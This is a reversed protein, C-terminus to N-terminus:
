RSRREAALRTSGKGAEADLLRDDNSSSLYPLQSPSTTPSHAAHTAARTRRDPPAAAAAGAVLGDVEVLEREEVSKLTADWSGPSIFRAYGGRQGALRRPPVGQHRAYDRALPQAALELLDDGAGAVLVIRDLRDAAEAGPQDQLLRELLLQGLEEAALAVLAAALRERMAVAVLPHPHLRGGPCELELTRAHAVGGREAEAARDHALAHRARVRELREDDAGEQAAERHAVDLRRQLLGEVTRDDGLRRDASDAGGRALAVAGPALAAQCLVVEDVQEEVGDVQLQAGVVGRGLADQDGPADRELAPLDQEPKGEARALAVLVPEVEAAVQDGAPQSRRREQDGVPAGPSQFAVRSSQGPASSCRQV